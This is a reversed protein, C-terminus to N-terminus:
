VNFIWLGYSYVAYRMRLLLSNHKKISRYDSYSLVSKFLDYLYFKNFILSYLFVSVLNIYLFLNNIRLFFQFDRNKKVVNKWLVSSM